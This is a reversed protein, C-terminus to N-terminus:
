KNLFDGCIEVLKNSRVTKLAQEIWEYIPQKRDEYPLEMGAKSLETIAHEYARSTGQGLSVDGPASAYGHLRFHLGQVAALLGVACQEYALSIIEYLNKAQANSMATADEQSACSNYNDITSPAALVKYTNYLDGIAYQPIMLGSNTGTGLVLFPPLGNSLKHDTARTVLATLNKFISSLAIALYASNFGIIQGHFNGGSLVFYGDPGEFILPNDTASHMETLVRKEVDPLIDRLSGLIEPICRISYASQVHGNSAGWKVLNSGRLLMRLNRATQMLGYHPRANHLEERYGTGIGELSEALMAAIIEANDALLKADHLSLALLSEGFVCGNILALGEKYSLRLTPIGAAKMADVSRLTSGNYHAKGEGIIPLAMHALSALDGSSGLSGFSPVVPIVGRELMQLMTDALVPRVGSYGRSFCILRLLMAARVVEPAYVEGRSGGIGSAHSRITNTQLTGMNGESIHISENEGVGTSLGYIPNNGTALSFLGRHAASIARKSAPSFKVSTGNRAVGVFQDLSIHRKPAIVLQAM